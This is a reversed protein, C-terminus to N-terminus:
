STRVTLNNPPLPSPSNLRDIVRQFRQIELQIQSGHNVLEESTIWATRANGIRISNAEFFGRFGKGQFLQTIGFIPILGVKSLFTAAFARTKSSKAPELKFGLREFLDSNQAVLYSTAEFVQMEAVKPDKQIIKERLIQLGKIGELPLKIKRDRASMKAMEGLRVLHLSGVQEGFRVERMPTKHNSLSSQRRLTLQEGLALGATIALHVFRGVGYVTAIPIALNGLQSLRLAAALVELGIGMAFWEAASQTIVHIRQDKLINGIKEFTPIMPRTIVPQEPIPPRPAQAPRSGAIFRRIESTRSAETRAVVENTEVAPIIPESQLTAQAVDPSRRLPLKEKLGRLITGAQERNM